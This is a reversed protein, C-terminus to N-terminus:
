LLLTFTKAEWLSLALRICAVYGLSDLRQEWSVLCMRLRSLRPYVTVFVFTLRLAGQGCVQSKEGEERGESMIIAENEKRWTSKGQLNKTRVNPM